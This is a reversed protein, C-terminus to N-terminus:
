ARRRVMLRGLVVIVLAVIVVGVLGAALRGIDGHLGPITYGSSSGKAADAFNKDEAVRQLGDPSSSAIGAALAVVVAALALGVAWWYSRLLGILGGRGTHTSPGQAAQSM